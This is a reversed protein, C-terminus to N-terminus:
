GGPPNVIALYEDETLSEITRGGLSDTLIEFYCDTGLGHYGVHTEYVYGAVLSEAPVTLEFGDPLVGYEVQDLERYRDGSSLAVDWFTRWALGSGCSDPLPTGSVAVAWVKAPRNQGTKKGFVFVPKAATSDSGLWVYFFEDCGALLLCLVAILSLTRRM